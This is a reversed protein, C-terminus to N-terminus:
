RRRRYYGGRKSLKATCLQALTAKSLDNSFRKPTRFSKHTSSIVCDVKCSDITTGKTALMELMKDIGEHTTSLLTEISAPTQCDVLAQGKLYNAAPKAVDIAKVGAETLNFQKISEGIDSFTALTGSVAQAVSRSMISSETMVSSFIRGNLCSTCVNDNCTWNYITVKLKSEDVIEKENCRRPHSQNRAVLGFIQQKDAYLPIVDLVHFQQVRKVSIGGKWRSHLLLFGEYELKEDNFEDLIRDFYQVNGLLYINYKKNKAHIIWRQIGQYLQTEIEQRSINPFVHDCLYNLWSPSLWTQLIQITLIHRRGQKEFLGSKFFDKRPVDFGEFLNSQKTFMQWIKTYDNFAVTTEFEVIVFSDITPDRHSSLKDRQFTAHISTDDKDIEDYLYDHNSPSVSEGHRAALTEYLYKNFLLLTDGFRTYFACRRVDKDMFIVKEIEHFKQPYKSEKDAVNGVKLGYFLRNEDSVYSNIHAAKIKLLKMDEEELSEFHFRMALLRQETSYDVCKTITRSSLPFGAVEKEHEDISGFFFASKLVNAFDDYLLTRTLFIDKDGPIQGSHLYKTAQSWAFSLACVLIMLLTAPNALFAAITGTLSFTAASASSAVVTNVTKAAFIYRNIERLFSYANKVEQIKANIRVASRQVDKKNRFWALLAILFASIDILAASKILKKLLDVNDSDLFTSVKHIFKKWGNIKTFKELFNSAHIPFLCQTDTRGIHKDSNHPGDYGNAMHYMWRLDLVSRVIPVSLFLITMLSNEAFTLLFKQSQTLQSFPSEVNGGMKEDADHFYEDIFLHAEDIIVLKKQFETVAATVGKRELLQKLEEHPMVKANSQNAVRDEVLRLENEWISCVRRPAVILVKHGALLYNSALITGTATKGIGASLVAVHGKKGESMRKM